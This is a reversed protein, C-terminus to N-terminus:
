ERASRRALVDARPSEELAGVCVTPARRRDLTGAAGVLRATPAARRLAAVSLRAVIDVALVDAILCDVRLGIVRLVAFNVLGRARRRGCRWRRRAM